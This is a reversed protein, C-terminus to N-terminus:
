GAKQNLDLSILKSVGMEEMTVGYLTNAAEMTGRRHTIVVFQVKSAFMELLRSFRHVNVEDLTADIEDLVCFPSPKVALIAFLLAIATMAREGGSLLSLSQLKKGPPQAIIEIGSELPHETDVLFLDANGGEFLEGFIKRFQFKIQEFTDNFKRTITREIEQIVKQLSEKAKILDQSQESLFDFRERVQRYEEIAGVNVAGMERMETKIKNICAEPDDPLILDPDFQDSWALGYDEALNRGINEMELTIQNIQLELRHLQNQYDNSKRRFGRQKSELERIQNLILEKDQKKQNILIEQSTLKQKETITKEELLAIMEKTKQRDTQIQLIKQGIDAFSEHIATLQKKLQEKLAKKGQEEQHHASLQARLDSLDMVLKEKSENASLIQLDLASLRGEIDKLRLEKANIEQELEDKGLDFQSGEVRLEEMQETYAATEQRVRGVNQQFAEWDRDFSAKRIREENGRKRLQNLEEKMSGLESRWTAITTLGQNLDSEADAKEQRLDDIEKRRSLLGLRRKDVSGGTITGGPIILDGDPTVIRLSRDLKPSIRVATRLDPAVVTHGLLYVLVPRYVPDFTLLSIMPQCNNERLLSQFQSLKSDSGQVSNLPMFTARGKNYRKLYGIAAEADRDSEIVVNQLNSGLATEVALEMGPQVKILDAIIGKISTFFPENAADALLSKVGQFYGQFSREMEDLLSIKSELGRIKEKSSLLKSELGAIDQERTAITQTLKLDASQTAAIDRELQQGQARRQEAEAEMATLQAQLQEQKKRCESVQRALFDKQLTNSNIKNKLAAIENLTEIFENKGTQEEEHYAALMKNSVALVAEKEEILTTCRKIRENIAAIEGDISQVEESLGEKRNKNVDVSTQHDHEQQELDDLRGSLFNAQEVMKDIQNQIRFYDENLGSLETDLNLQALRAQEIEAEIVSEQSEFKQYADELEMKSQSRSELRSQLENVLGGYYNIEIRALEEKLELYQKAVVSQAELPGVQGALETLIDQVRILNRDTEDLKREAVQKRTKYKIIGAAEEFIMRREEAKVSLISDIKGQGIVSYAEKGLGTDFFLELVDKLRVSSKNILYDSEGSRFLKRTVAVESFDVSLARDTNDLIITVEALGLPKRLDSGAFIVDDMKSGRLSKISQEGLVWRLADSINSKGSGNPGVVATVGPMFDLRIKDAFSKFGVIELRKLYL